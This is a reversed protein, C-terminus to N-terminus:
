PFATDLDQIGADTTDMGTEIVALITDRKLIQATPPSGAHIAQGERAGEGQNVPIPDRDPAGFDDIQVLFRSGGVGLIGM